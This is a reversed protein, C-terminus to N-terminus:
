EGPDVCPYSDAAASFPAPEVPCDMLQFCPMCLARGDFEVWPQMCENNFAHVMSNCRGCMVTKVAWSHEGPLVDTNFSHIQPEADM